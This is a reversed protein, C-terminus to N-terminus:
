QRRPSIGRADAAEVEFIVAIVRGVLKAHPTSALKLFIRDERKIFQERKAFEIIPRAKRVTRWVRATRKM